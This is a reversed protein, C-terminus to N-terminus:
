KFPKSAEIQVLRHFEAKQEDSLYRIHDEVSTIKVIAEVADKIDKDTLTTSKGYDIVEFRCSVNPDNCLDRLRNDCM